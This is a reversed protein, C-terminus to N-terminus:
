WLTPVPYQRIAEDPTLITLGHEIAQCVLMRDFPDDHTRSLPWVRLVPGLELPLADVGLEDILRPVSRDPAEPLDLRGIGRKVAIEWGSVVSLLM